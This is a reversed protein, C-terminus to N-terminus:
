SSESFINIRLLEDHVDYHLGEKQGHADPSCAQDLAHDDFSEKLPLQPVDDDSCSSQSYDDLQKSTGSVDQSGTQQFSAKPRNDSPPINCGM